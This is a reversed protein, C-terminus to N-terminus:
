QKRSVLLQESRHPTSFHGYSPLRRMRMDSVTVNGFIEKMATCTDSALAFRRSNAVNLVLVGGARLLRLSQEISTRIFGQLWVEYTPFQLYSQQAGNGYRERDFYPPSTFILDATGATMRPLVETAAGQTLVPANPDLRGLDSIMRRSGAIQESSADIGIYRAGCAIAALLRGGYGSCFDIVQGGPPCYKKIIGAAVMPRFNAVRGPAAIRFLSRVCQANWCSRNPWFRPARELMRALFKDDEFYEIPSRKRGYGCVRWMQPHYCNALRLGSTDMGELLQDATRLSIGRKLSELQGIAQERTVFPFPFGRSRWYAHAVAVSANREDNPLSLIWSGKWREVEATAIELVASRKIELLDVIM